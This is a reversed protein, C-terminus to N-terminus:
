WRDNKGFTLDTMFKKEGVTRKGVKDVILRRFFLM